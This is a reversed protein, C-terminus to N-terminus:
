RVSPDARRVRVPASGTRTASRSPAATEPMPRGAARRRGGRALCGCRGRAGRDAVRNATALPVAPVPRTSSRRRMATGDDSAGVAELRTFVPGRNPAPSPFRVRVTLKPVTCGCPTDGSKRPRCHGATAQHARGYGATISRSHVPVTQDTPGDRVRISRPGDRRAPCRFTVIGQRSGCPVCEWRWSSECQRVSRRPGSQNKLLDAGPVLM